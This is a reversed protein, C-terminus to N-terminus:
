LALAANEAPESPDDVPVVESAPVRVALAGAEVTLGPGFAMALVTEDAETSDLLEKLVFLITPSSMNGYRRLVERSADLADEPLGLAEVVRDLIAKGGPHVALRDFSQEAFGTRRLISGIEASIVKPVYSSLVLDFGTDGISWAMASEGEPITATAFRELSFSKAGLPPRSNVIGGAAGDAFVTNGLISDPSDDVQMHLTCLELCVVLVNADPDAQCFQDAMRLAPFAGYCGMFGLNFRQVSEDLGLDKVLYFDPGPNVFGTCTVFVVHTVDERRITEPGRFIKKALQGALRRSETAYVANRRATTAKGERDFPPCDFFSEGQTHRTEIGSRRFAQGVLRQFRKDSYQDQLQKALEAQSRAFPPVETELNHLYAPM